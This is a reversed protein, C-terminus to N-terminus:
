PRSPDSPAPPTALGDTKSAVVLGTFREDGLVLTMEDGPQAIGPNYFMLFYNKGALPRVSSQRMIGVKTEPVGLAQGSKEDVLYIRHDKTRGLLPLAKEPDVVLVRLELMRDAATPRFAVVEVGLSEPGIAVLRGGSRAKRHLGGHPDAFTGASTALLVVLPVIVGAKM